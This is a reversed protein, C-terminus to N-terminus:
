HSWRYSPLYRHYKLDLLISISYLELLVKTLLPGRNEEENGV